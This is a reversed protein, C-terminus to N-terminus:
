VNNEEVVPVIVRRKITVAMGHLIAVAYTDM